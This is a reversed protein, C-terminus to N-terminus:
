TCGPQNERQESFRDGGLGLSVVQPIEDFPFFMFEM